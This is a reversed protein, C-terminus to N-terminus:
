YFRVDLENFAIRTSHSITDLIFAHIKWKNQTGALLVMLPRPCVAEPADAISKLTTTDMKSLKAVGNPHSHWDGLYTVVGGSAKYVRQMEVKHFEHDPLFSNRRHRALPGPGVIDTVVIADGSIYGALIGGVENPYFATAFNTSSVRAQLPLWCTDIIPVPNM